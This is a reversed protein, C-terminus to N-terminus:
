AHGNAAIVEKSDTGDDVRLAIAGPDRVTVDISRQAVL